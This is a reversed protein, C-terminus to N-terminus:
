EFKKEVYADKVELNFKKSLANCSSSSNAIKSLLIKDYDDINYAFDDRPKGILDERYIFNYENSENLTLLNCFGVKSEYVGPKILLGDVFYTGNEHKSACTIKLPPPTHDLFCM